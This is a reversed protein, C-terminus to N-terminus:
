KKEGTENLNTWTPWQCACIAKNKCYEHAGMDCWDCVADCPPAPKVEKRTAASEFM